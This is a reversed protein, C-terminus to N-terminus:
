RTAAAPTLCSWRFHRHPQLRVTIRLGPVGTQKEDAPVVTRAGRGGKDISIVDLGRTYDAVYVLDDRGPFFDAQSATTSDGAWVGVPRPHRPDSVDLFRVGAGYWADAVVKSSNLSFWHSSCYQKQTLPGHNDANVPANWSSVPRLLKAKRDIRWVEFRGDDTCGPAYSEETILWTDRDLRKGGHLILNDNAKNDAASVRAVLTPHLPDKGLRHVAAGKSGYVTIDGFRDVEADHVSGGAPTAFTGVVKPVALDRVDVVVVQSGGSVWLYRDGDVLTSTHGYGSPLGVGGIVTPRSPTRLDVLNVRGAGGVQSDQSMVAFRRTQSVAIDENQYNPLELKALPKPARPNSVDFVQLGGTLKVPTAGAENWVLDPESLVYVTRGLFHGSVAGGADFAHSVLHVNPTAVGSSSSPLLQAPAAHAPPALVTATCLAALLVRRM